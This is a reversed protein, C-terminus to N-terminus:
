YVRLEYLSYGHRTGRREGQMRVYRATTPPFTVVDLGGTRGSLAAATQWTSGDVSTEVRYDAGYAAEWHLAVRSVPRAQGLDVRLWEGDRNTSAWRTRMDGDVAHRPRLDTLLNSETSSATATGALPVPPVHAEAARMTRLYSEAGRVLDDVIEAGAVKRIDEIWDPMLGYHAMGDTNMDWTREGMTYREVRVSGDASTFPYTVPDGGARPGPLGGIGNADIGFGYGDVGYQDRVPESRRWEEAFAGAGHGYQAVMGGLAYIRPFLKPDSWSHSSVVGPYDAEELIDLTRDAAKVSMHDLEILMGREMMGRVMHEGLASLGHVNCHPAPPYLPLAPVLPAIPDPLVGDPTVTNDALEGTCTRAQWFRGTSLFNGANVFVGQAGSDFRVGCLANDYKHCVFMSRVGLAHMEDLGRDIDATTCQPVGLVQRCGFPESTEVGLLVALRGSEIVQRAEAESRVIRLWGRGPGGNEADIFAELDRMMRAQLRLSEMEGCPKNKLPYIECLQRNAVLHNVMLRLGGRWAREIWKYYAAQHTLSDHAPWDTFTPWGTPDHTGVPSGHRTFNEFWAFEGNPEHDHCDQLAAAPGRADFVKGCILNGGFAVDSMVHNHADLLGAVSGDPLTGRFPEGIVGVDAGPEAGQAPPTGLVAVAALLAMGLIVPRRPM